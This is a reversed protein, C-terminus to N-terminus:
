TGGVLLWNFIITLLLNAAILLVISHVVANTTARGVGEAGGSVRLGQYCSVITIIVAFVEAKILGNVIDRGCLAQRTMEIYQPGPINHLLGVGVVYGGFVGAYDAFITLCALMALVALLRPLVLFRVPSIAATELALLEESVKMTGLEAAMAAGVFGSMVIATILPAIERTIAVGIVNALRTIVGFQSLLPAISVALIMGIFLNAMLVIPLSHVGVRVMQLTVTGRPLRSRGALCRGLHVGTERLLGGMGGALEVGALGQRGLAGLIRGVMRGVM